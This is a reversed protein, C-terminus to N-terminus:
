HWCRHLTFASIFGFRNRAHLRFNHLLTIVYDKGDVCYNFFMSSHACNSFYPLFSM